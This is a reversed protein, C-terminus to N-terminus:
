IAANYVWAKFFLDFLWAHNEPMLWAHNEFFFPMLWAHDAQTDILGEGFFCSSV